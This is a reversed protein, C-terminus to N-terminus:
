LFLFRCIFLAAAMGALDATLGVPVAYRTKKIGVAGFYVAIVYFTTETCGYLTSALNGIFSDPGHTKMLETILGLSGSGSLPRLLAAPLVEAPMGVRETLPSLLRVLVEMAGSSRFLGAAALVATLYPLIRVATHFGEKAGEVFVEYIKVRRMMGVTPIILLLVPILWASLLRVASRLLDAAQPIHVYKIIFALTFVMFLAVGATALKAADLRKRAAAGYLKAAAVATVTAAASAFLSPGVIAAPEASGLATRVGIITIPALTLGATNLGLFMIMADDATEKDSNLTQLQEMAKIGFPTAANGLGLWNASLNLMISGFAPHNPPIGPFLRRSLPAALRALLRVLGAAEAIKLMGLWLTMIGILGFAVTVATGAADVVTQTVTSVHGTAMAAILSILLLLYWIWNM